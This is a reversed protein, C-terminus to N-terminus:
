PVVQVAILDRRIGALQHFDGPAGLLHPLTRFQDECLGGNAQELPPYVLPVLTVGSRVTGDFTRAVVRRCQVLDVDDM